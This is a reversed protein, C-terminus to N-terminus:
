LFGYGFQLGGCDAVNLTTAKNYCLKLYISMLIVKQDGAQLDQMQKNKM